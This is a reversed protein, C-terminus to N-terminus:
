DGGRRGVQGLTYNPVHPFLDLLVHLTECFCYLISTTFVWKYIRMMRWTLCECHQPLVLLGVGVKRMVYDYVRQSHRCQYTFIMNGGDHHIWRGDFAGMTNKSLNFWNARFHLGGSDSWRRGRQLIRHRPSILCFCVACVVFGYRARCSAPAICM